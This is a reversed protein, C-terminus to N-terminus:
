PQTSQGAVTPAASWAPGPLVLLHEAAPPPRSAAPKATRDIARKRLIEQVNRIAFIHLFKTVQAGAALAAHEREYLKVVDDMPVQTEEALLAVARRQDPPKEFSASM